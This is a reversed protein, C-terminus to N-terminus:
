TVAQQSRQLKERVALALYGARTTGERRAGADPREVLAEDMTVNIRMSRGPVDMTLPADIPRAMETEESLVWDPMPTNPVASLPLPQGEAVM